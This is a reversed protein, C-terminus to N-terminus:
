RLGIVRFYDCNLVGTVTANAQAVFIPALAGAPINTTITNVVLGDVYFAVSTPTAYIGLKRWVSDAWTFGAGTTNVSSATTNSTIVGTTSVGAYGIFDKTTDLANSTILATSGVAALGFAFQVKPTTSLGTYQCRTEAWFAKTTGLAVMPAAAQFTVGQGATVAGTTILAVGGALTTSITIGGSTVSTFTFGGITNSSITSSLFDEFYHVGISPDAQIPLYPCSEWLSGGLSPSLATDRWILNEYAGSVGNPGNPLRIRHQRVVEAM